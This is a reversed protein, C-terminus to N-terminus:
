PKHHRPLSRVRKSRRASGPQIPAAPRDQKLVPIIGSRKELALYSTALTQAEVGPHMWVLGAGGEAAGQLQSKVRM